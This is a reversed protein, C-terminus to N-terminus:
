VASFGFIDKTLALTASDVQYDVLAVAGEAIEYTSASLHQGGRTGTIAILVLFALLSGAVILFTHQYTNIKGAVM